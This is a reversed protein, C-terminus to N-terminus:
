LMFVSIHVDINSFDFETKSLQVGMTLLAM